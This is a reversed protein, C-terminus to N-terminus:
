AKRASGKKVMSAIEVGVAKSEENSKVVGIAADANVILSDNHSVVIFQSNKSMEKILFSLKKSNEKDLASDVEDFVYIQSPKCMHIAFLLILSVLSKEGGSMSHLLKEKKGEIIRVELGSSFPDRENSLVISAKGTFIYGFLGSFNKNVATFTSMFTELKKSDIEEIMRMIANKEYGLTEIRSKAEEVDKSKELYIEPAKLNVNGLETIRAALVSSEKEMEELKGEIIEINAYLTLEAKLDNLRVELQGREIRIESIEREAMSIEASLSGKRSSSEGIEADIKNLEEYVKRGSESGSAIMEEIEKMRKGLEAKRTSKEKIIEGAKKASEKGSDSQKKIENLREKLLENEKRMEASKIKLEELEKRLKKEKEILEKRAGKKNLERSSELMENYLRQLAKKSNEMKENLMRREGLLSDRRDGISRLKAELSKIGTEMRDANEEHRKTESELYNVERRCSTIEMELTAISKRVSLLRGEAESIRKRVREKEDSLHMIDSEIAAISVRRRQSGGSVVGSQEVLEGELTVYRKKGIGMKKSDEIDDILSTNGFIYNFVREYYKDFSVMGIISREDIREKRTDVSLENIPIFTARGLSNKKMHEIIIKANSISDVVLYDFRSGAATEIALAYKSDYGCLRSAKGHFGDKRGFRMALKDALEDGRPQHIAKQEKLKLLEEDIRGSENNMISLESSLAKEDVLMENYKRSAEDLQAAIEGRRGSSAAAEAQANKIEERIEEMRSNISSEEAHVAAISDAISSLRLEGDEISINLRKIDEEYNKAEGGDVAIGSSESELEHIKSALFAIEENNKRTKDEATFEEIELESLRKEADRVTTEKNSLEVGIEALERRISELMANKESMKKSSENLSLSLRQRSEGLRSINLSLKELKSAAENKKSELSALKGSLEDYRGQLVKARKVVVSYNLAKMRANMSTYKEASNKEKELERLFGLRENLVIQAEGIRQSVKELEKMSEGKKVEFEKIGSAIDILERREKSNLDIIKNIEGQAITSTEDVHINHKKLLELVEHRRMNKGNVKYATKGDSRVFRTISIKDDGDFDMKVNAKALEGAKRKMGSNILFDLKSVRLRRLSNEGLGFLLADCINSKGSGNPGVVCTFGNSFLLEAHRFSKFKSIAISKIYLM